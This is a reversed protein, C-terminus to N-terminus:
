GGARHVAAVSDETRPLAAQERLRTCPIPVEARCGREVPADRDHHSGEASRASVEAALSGTRWAEDIVVARYLHAVSAAIAEDGLPRLTRLHVVEASIGGAAFEDAAALAQPRSGGYTKWAM